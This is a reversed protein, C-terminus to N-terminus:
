STISRQQTARGIATASCRHHKATTCAPLDAVENINAHQTHNLTTATASAAIRLSQRQQQELHAGM